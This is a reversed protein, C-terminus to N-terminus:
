RGLSTQFLHVSFLKQKSFTCCKFHQWFTLLMVKTTLYLGIIEWICYFSLIWQVHSSDFQFSITLVTIYKHNSADCFVGFIHTNKPELYGQINCCHNQKPWSGLIINWCCFHHSGDPPTPLSSWTKVMENLIKTMNVQVSITVWFPKM